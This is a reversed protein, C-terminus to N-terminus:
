PAEAAAPQFRPATVDAGGSPSTQMLAALGAGREGTTLGLLLAVFAGAILVGFPDLEVRMRALDHELQWKRFLGTQLEGLEAGGRDGDRHAARRLETNEERLGGREFGRAVDARNEEVLGARERLAPGFDGFNRGVGAAACTWARAPTSMKWM